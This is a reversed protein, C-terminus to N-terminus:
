EFYCKLRIGQPYDGFHEGFLNMGGAHEAQPDVGIKVSLYPQDYRVVQEITVDSIPVEDLWTGNKDVRWTKLLGYQTNNLNWWKPTLLGYRGGCDAPCVWTGVPVQNIQVTISSEWPNKYRVVESCAEFSLELSTVTKREKLAFRYELWGTTLWILQASVREPLYFSSPTDKTGIVGTDSALGCTPTVSELSSYAGVPMDMIIFNNGSQADALLQLAIRSTHIRCLKASGHACPKMTTHLIGVDELIKVSLAATSMPMHLTAAIEGVSLMSRHALLEVIDLRAPSDLAHIVKLLLEKDRLTFRAHHDIQHEM